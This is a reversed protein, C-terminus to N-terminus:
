GGGNAETDHTPGDAIKRCLDLEVKAVIISQINEGNVGNAPEDSVYTRGQNVQRWASADGRGLHKRANERLRRNCSKVAQSGDRATPKISVPDLQTPLKGVRAGAEAIRQDHCGNNKPDHVENGPEPKATVFLRLDDANIVVLHTFECIIINAELLVETDLVNFPPQLSFPNIRSATTPLGTM